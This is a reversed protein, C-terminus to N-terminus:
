RKGVKAARAGGATELPGEAHRLVRIVPERISLGTDEPAADHEKFTFGDGGFYMFDNIVVRYSKKDEIPRGVREVASVV